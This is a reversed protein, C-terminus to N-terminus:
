KLTLNGKESWVIPLGSGNLTYEARLIKDEHRVTFTRGAFHDDIEYTLTDNKVFITKGLLSDMNAFATDYIVAVDNEPSFWVEFTRGSNSPKYHLGGSIDPFKNDFRNLTDTVTFTYKGPPISVSRNHNNRKESQIFEDFQFPFISSLNCNIILASIVITVLTAKKIM